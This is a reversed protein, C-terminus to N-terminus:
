KKHRKYQKRRREIRAISSRTYKDAQKQLALRKRAEAKMEKQLEKKNM